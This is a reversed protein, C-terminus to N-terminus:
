DNSDNKWELPILTSTPFKLSKLVESTVPLSNIIEFSAVNDKLSFVRGENIVFVSIYYQGKNFFRSPLEVYCSNNQNLQIPQTNLLLSTCIVVRGLSDSVQFLFPYSENSEKTIDTKIVVSENYTFKNKREGNTGCFNVANLTYGLFKTKDLRQRTLDKDETVDSNRNKLSINHYKVLLSIDETKNLIEGNELLMFSTCINLQESHNHSVILFTVENELMLKNFREAIKKRFSIDGVSIVEDLLLIDYKMFLLISFALRLFMGSSYHKVATHIFEGIESFEVIKDYVRDIDKHSMGLFEGRLYVNDRGSLDAHFGTGIDLISAINGTLQATGQTPKTLGSLIKLLTSKGSGNKGIIGVVEGKKVEFSVNKLAHFDEYTGNHTKKQYVKSLNNVKVVIEDHM